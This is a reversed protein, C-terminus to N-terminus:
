FSLDTLLILNITTIKSFKENPFHSIKIKKKFEYVDM